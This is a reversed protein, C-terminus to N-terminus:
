RIAQVRKSALVAARGADDSMEELRYFPRIEDTFNVEIFRTSGAGLHVTRTANNHPGVVTVDYSGSAVDVRIWTHDMLSGVTARGVMIPAISVLRTAVVYLAAKGDSPAVLREGAADDAPVAMPVEPRGRSSFLTGVGPTDNPMVIEMNVIRSGPRGNCNGRALDAGAHRRQRAAGRGRVNAPQGLGSLPRRQPRGSGQRRVNSIIAAGEPLVGAVLHAALHHEMLASWSVKPM